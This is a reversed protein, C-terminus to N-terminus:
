SSAPKLNWARLEDVASLVRWGNLMMNFICGNKAASSRKKQALLETVVESRKRLHKSEGSEAQSRRSRL